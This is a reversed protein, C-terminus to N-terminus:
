RNDLVGVHALCRLLFGQAAVAQVIHSTTLMRETRTFAYRRKKNAEKLASDLDQRSMNLGGLILSRIFSKMVLSLLACSALKGDTTPHKGGEVRFSPLVLPEVTAKVFEVLKPDAASLLARFEFQPVVTNITPPAAHTLIDKIDVLPFKTTRHSDPLGDESCSQSILKCTDQNLGCLHCYNGSRSSDEEAPTQTAGPRYSYGKSSLWVYVDGVSLTPFDSQDNRGTTEELYAGRLAKARAWELAKRRGMNMSQLHVKTQAFRYPVDVANKSESLATPCTVWVFVSIYAGKVMPYAATLRTLVQSYNPEEAITAIADLQSAMPLALDWIAKSDIAPHNPHSPGIVTRKDLEIDMVQEEGVAPTASKVSDLEVWHELIIKQSESIAESGGIGNFLLEIRALFPRDSTGVVVYPPSDASVHTYVSSAMTDAPTVTISELITTLDHAYSPSHLSITWRHSHFGQRRHPPIWLSRDTVIVRTTFYFRSQSSNALVEPQRIEVNPTSVLDTKFSYNFHDADKSAVNRFPLSVRHCQTTSRLTVVDVPDDQGYVKIGRRIASKGLFPALTPTDEHLGLTKTLSTSAESQNTVAKRFISRIGPLIGSSGIGVEVGAATDLGPHIVACERVCDEHTGWELRHAIRAHNLLGQLTTFTTRLCKPCRLLYLDQGPYGLVTSKIYLFCSSTSRPRPPAPPPHDFLLTCPAEIARLADFAAANFSSQHHTHDDLVSSALLDAWRLRDQLASAIRHTLRIHADLDAAIFSSMLTTSCVAVQEKQRGTMFPQSTQRRRRRLKDAAWCSIGVGFVDVSWVAVVVGVVVEVSLAVEVVDVVEETAVEVVEM